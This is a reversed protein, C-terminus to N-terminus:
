TQLHLLEARYFRDADPPTPHRDDPSSFTVNWAAHWRSPSHQDTLTLGNATNGVVLAVHTFEESDRNDDWAIVDGPVAGPVTKAHLNTIPTITVVGHSAMTDIFDSAVTWSHTWQYKTTHFWWSNYLMGGHHLAMSVFNACDNGFEYTSEDEL